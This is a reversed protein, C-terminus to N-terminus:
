CHLPKDNFPGYKARVWVLIEDQDGTEITLRNESTSYMNSSSQISVLVEYEIGPLDKVNWPKTWNLVITRNSRSCDARVSSPAVSKALWEENKEEVNARKTEKVTEFLKSMEDRDLVTDQYIRFLFYPEDCCKTQEVEEDRRIQEKIAETLYQFNYFNNTRNKNSWSFYNLDRLSALQKYPTYYSPNTKYPFLEILNSNQPLFLAFILGAGHMGVLLSTCSFFRILSELSDLGNDLDLKLVKYGFSKELQDVLEDENLILRSRTRSLLVTYLESCVPRRVIAERIRDTYLQILQKQSATKNVAFQHRKFGYDYWVTGKELGIEADEFCILQNSTQKFDSRYFLQVDKFLTLYLSRSYYDSELRFYDDFLFFNLKRKGDDSSGFQLSHLTNYLPLLDDHISHMLNDPKFRSFILTLGTIRVLKHDAFVRRYESHDVEVYHFHFNNHEVSGLYQLSPSFRDAPLNLLLSRQRDQIFVFERSDVRYCLNSFRCRRGYISASKPKGHSLNDEYKCSVSSFLDFNKVEDEFDKLQVLITIYISLFLVFCASLTLCKPNIM